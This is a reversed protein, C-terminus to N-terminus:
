KEEEDQRAEPIYVAKFLNMLRMTIHSVTAYLKLFDEHSIYKWELLLIALTLGDHSESREQAWTWHLELVLDMKGAERLSHLFRNLWNMATPLMDWHNRIGSIATRFLLIIKRSSADSMASDLACRAVVSVATLLGLTRTRHVLKGEDTFTGGTAHVHEIAGVTEDLVGPGSAHTHVEIVRLLVTAFNSRAAGLSLSLGSIIEKLIYQSQVSRLLNNGSTTENVIHQIAHERTCPQLNKKASHLLRATQPSVLLESSPTPCESPQEEGASEVCDMDAGCEEGINSEDVNAPNNTMSAGDALYNASSPPAGQAYAVAENPSNGSMGREITEADM